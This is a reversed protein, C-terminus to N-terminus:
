KKNVNKYKELDLDSILEKLSATKMGEGWESSYTKVVLDSFEFKGDKWAAYKTPGLINRQATDSLSKFADEGSAYRRRIQEAREGKIGYKKFIEELSPGAKDAASLDMGFRAGLEEYTYTLPEAVCRCNPHTDMKESMPHETGHMAFCAECTTDDCASSWRWGKVVDDNAQYIAQATERQARMVETRSITLAKSLNMGLTDRLVPAIKRPNQGLAVGQVLAEQADQFAKAGNRSLLKTLPSEPQNMGVMTEITKVPLRNFDIALGKPANLRILDLAFERSERIARAQEATITKGANKAFKNLERAIQEQLQMARVNQYYWNLSVDGGRAAARAYETDLKVLQAKIRKWSEAYARVMATAAKREERLLQKDFAEIVDDITPM